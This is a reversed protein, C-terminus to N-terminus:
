LFEKNLFAEAVHDYSVKFHVINGEVLCQEFADLNIFNYSHDTKGIKVTVSGNRNHIVFSNDVGKYITGTKTHKYLM